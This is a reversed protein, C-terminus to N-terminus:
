PYVINVGNKGFFTVTTGATFIIGSIAQSPNTAITVNLLGSFQFANGDITTVSAPIAISELAPCTQFARLGITQVSNGITVSILSSCSQFAEKGITIVSTPIIVGTLNSCSQFAAEDISTVSAPITISTLGICFLFSRYGISTVSNPITYTGSKGGPCQILTTQLKNFLVGDLSSYNTNSTDVNISTLSFCTNFASIGITTVSTPITISTLGSQQFAAQGISTLTSILAFTVSALASCGLFALQGISTVINGITVAILNAVSPVTTAPISTTTATYSFNPLNTDLTFTVTDWVFSSGQTTNYVLTTTPTTPPTPTISNSAASNPSNGVANTAYVTFTYSTGNTLGTIVGSTNSTTLTNSGPTSTITYTLIASGGNSSPVSWSINASGSSTGNSAIPNLPASPVTLPVASVVNSNPSYGNDSIARIVIQYTTGNTLGTITIPSSTTAANTFSTGNNTSYEYNNINYGGSSTPGTFSVTLQTNGSVINTIIPATFPIPDKVVNTFQNICESPNASRQNCYNFMRTSSGRGKTAGLNITGAVIPQNAGIHSYFGKKFMQLGPM